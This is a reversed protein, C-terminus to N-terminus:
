LLLKQGGWVPLVLNKPAKEALICMHNEMYGRCLEELFVGSHQEYVQGQLDKFYKEELLFFLKETFRQNEWRNCALCNFYGDDRISAM